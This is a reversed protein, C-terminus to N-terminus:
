AHETMGEWDVRKCHVKFFSTLESGVCAEHVFSYFISQLFLSSDLSLM